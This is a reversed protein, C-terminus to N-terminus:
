SFRPKVFKKGMSNKRSNVASKDSVRIIIINVKYFASHKEPLKKAYRLVKQIDSQFIYNFIAILKM